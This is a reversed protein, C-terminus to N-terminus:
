IETNDFIKNIIIKKTKYIKIQYKAIKNHDLISLIERFIHFFFNIKSFLTKKISYKSKVSLLFHFLFM